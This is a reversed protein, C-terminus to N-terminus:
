SQYQRLIESREENLHQYMSLVQIEFRTQEEENGWLLKGSQIVQHQLVTSASLLDVLDVDQKFQHALKEQLEFREIPCLQHPLLVALDIDSQTTSTSNAQSGFLYLLKFNPLVHTVAEIITDTSVM